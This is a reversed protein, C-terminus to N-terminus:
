DVGLFITTTGFFIKLELAVLIIKTMKFMLGSKKVATYVVSYDLMIIKLIKLGLIFEEIILERKM